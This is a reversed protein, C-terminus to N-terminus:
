EGAERQRKREIASQISDHTADREIDLADLEEDTLDRNETNMSQILEAFKEATLFGLDLYSLLTGVTAPLFM